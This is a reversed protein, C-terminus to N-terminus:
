IRTGAYPWLNFHFLTSIIAAFGGNRDMEQCVWWLKKAICDPIKDPQARMPLQQLQFLQFRLWKPHWSTRSRATTWLFDMLFTGSESNRCVLMAHDAHEHTPQSFSSSSLSRAWWASAPKRIDWEMMAKNSFIGNWGMTEWHKEDWWKGLALQWDIAWTKQGFGQHSTEDTASSCMRNVLPPEAVALTQLMPLSPRSPGQNRLHTPPVGMKHAYIAM